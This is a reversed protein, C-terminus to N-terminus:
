NNIELLKQTIGEVTYTNAMHITNPLKLSELTSKCVEGIAVVQVNSSLTTHKFYERVGMSSGFVIYDIANTPAIELPTPNYGLSYIPIDTYRISHTNLADTLANSGNSARLILYNDNPTAHTIISEALASSTYTDPILDAYVGYKNLSEATSKGITVIRIGGLTRIDIKNTRLYNFYSDVGNTSTFVLHTYPTLDQPINEYHPTLTLHPITLVEAGLPSLASSLKHTFSETGTVAIVKGGLPYTITSNFDFKTVDGVIFISPTNALPLYDLINSLTGKYCKAHATTGQSVIACPTTTDMGNSILGECIAQLRNLAMLFVLTGKLRALTSYDESSNDATHGTIVHFSRAVSRHTVPIGVSSPVAISSSVGSIVEYPINHKQLALVEEGGRGFVFPDGGKLRAVTYGQLAKEVLIANIEEQSKSHKGCQKGVYIRECNPPLYELLKQPILRDYVVCNCLTLRQLGKLTILEWDGCGAGILYVKGINSM